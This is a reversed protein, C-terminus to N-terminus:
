RIIGVCLIADERETGHYIIYMYLNLTIHVVSDQVYYICVYM